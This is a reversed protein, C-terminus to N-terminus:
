KDRVLDSASQRFKSGQFSAYELVWPAFRANLEEAKAADSLELAPKKAEFAEQNEATPKQATAAQEHQAKLKEAFEEDFSVSIKGYHKNDRVATQIAYRLGRKTWYVTEHDFKLDKVQENENRFADTIRFNELGSQVQSLVTTVLEKGPEVPESPVLTDGAEPEGANAPTVLEFQLSRAGDPTVAYQRVRRIDSSLINLASSRIWDAVATSAAFNQSVIYVTDENQRRVFQGAGPMTPDAGKRTEGLYLAGLLEGDKAFLSVKGSGQQVAEDTVGLTEFREPSTRVTQSSALDMLRVFLSRVKEDDAPYNERAPLVWGTDQQLLTLEEAGRQITVKALQSGDIDSFLARSTDDSTSRPQVLLLVVLLVVGVVGLIGLHKRTM